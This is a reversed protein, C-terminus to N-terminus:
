LSPQRQSAETSKAFERSIQPSNARFASPTFAPPSSAQLKKGARFFEMGLGRYVDAARSFVEQQLAESRIAQREADERGANGKRPFRPPFVASQRHHPNTTGHFSRQLVHPSFSGWVANDTALDNPERVKKGTKSCPILRSPDIQSLHLIQRPRQRRNRLRFRDQRNEGPTKKEESEVDSERATSLFSPPARAGRHTSHGIGCQGIGNRRSIRKGAYCRRDREKVEHASLGEKKKGLKKQPSSENALSSKM